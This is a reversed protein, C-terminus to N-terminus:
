LLHWARDSMLRAYVGSSSLSRNRKTIERSFIFRVKGKELLGGREGKGDDLSAVQTGHRGADETAVKKKDIRRRLRCVATGRKEGETRTEEM